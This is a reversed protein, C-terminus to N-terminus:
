VENVGEKIAEAITDWSVNESVSKPVHLEKDFISHEYGLQKIKEENAESWSVGRISYQQNGNEDIYTPQKYEIVKIMSM